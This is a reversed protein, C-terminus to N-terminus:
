ELYYPFNEGIYHTLFAFHTYRSFYIPSPIHGLSLICTHLDKNQDGAYFLLSPFLFSFDQRLIVYSETSECFIKQFQHTFETINYSLFLCVFVLEIKIYQFSSLGEEGLNLLMKLQEFSYLEETQIQCLMCHTLTHTHTRFIISRYVERVSIHTYLLGTDSYKWCNFKCPCFAQLMGSLWSHAFIRHHM